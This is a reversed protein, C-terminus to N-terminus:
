DTRQSGGAAGRHGSTHELVLLLDLLYVRKICGINGMFTKETTFAISNSPFYDVCWQIRLELNKHFSDLPLFDMCGLQCHIFDLVSSFLNYTTSCNYSLALMM